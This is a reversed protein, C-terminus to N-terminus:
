WQQSVQESFKSSPHSLCVHGRGDAVGMQVHALPHQIVTSARLKKACILGGLGSAFCGTLCCMIAILLPNISVKTCTVNFVAGALTKGWSYSDWNEHDSAGIVLQNQDLQKNRDRRTNLEAAEKEGLYFRRRLALARVRTHFFWFARQLAIVDCAICKQKSALVSVITIWIAAKKFKMSYRSCYYTCCQLIM